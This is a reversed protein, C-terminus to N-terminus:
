RGVGATSAISGVNLHAVFAQGANCPVGSGDDQMVVVVVRRTIGHEFVRHEEAIVSSARAVFGHVM